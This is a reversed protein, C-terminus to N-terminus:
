RLYPRLGVVCQKSWCRLAFSQTACRGGEEIFRMYLGHSIQVQPGKHKDVEFMPYTVEFLELGQLIDSFEFGEPELVDMVLALAAGQARQAADEADSISLPQNKKELLHLSLAQAVQILAGAPPSKEKVEELIPSTVSSTFVQVHLFVFLNPPGEGSWLLRPGYNGFKHSEGVVGFGWKPGSGNAVVHCPRPLSIRGHTALLSFFGRKRTSTPPCRASTRRAPLVPRFSGCQM